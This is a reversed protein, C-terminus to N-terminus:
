RSHQGSVVCVPFTRSLSKRGEFSELKVDGMELTPQADQLHPSASPREAFGNLRQMLALRRPELRGQDAAAVAM